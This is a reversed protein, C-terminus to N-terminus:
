NLVGRARLHRKLIRVETKKERKPQRAKKLQNAKIKSSSISKSTRNKAM